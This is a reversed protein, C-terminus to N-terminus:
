GRRQDEKVVKGLGHCKPCKKVVEVTLSPVQGTGSCEPCDVYVDDWPGLKGPERLKVM